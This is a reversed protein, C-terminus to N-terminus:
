MSFQPRFRVTMFAIGGWGKCLTDPHLTYDCVLFTCNIGGFVASYLCSVGCIWTIFSIDSGKSPTSVFYRPWLSLLWHALSESIVTLFQVRQM